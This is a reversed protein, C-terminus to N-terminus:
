EEPLDAVSFSGPTVAAGPEVRYEFTGERLSTWVMDYEEDSGTNVAFVSASAGTKTYSFPFESRAAVLTALGDNGADAPILWVNTIPPDSMEVVTLALGELSEPAFSEGNEGVGVDGDGGADEGECACLPWAVMAALLLRRSQRLTGPTM